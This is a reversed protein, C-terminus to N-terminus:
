SEKLHRRVGAPPSETLSVGSSVFEGNILVSYCYLGLDSDYVVTYGDENESRTYFEDGFVVLKVEPGKEQPVTLTEGFISSM